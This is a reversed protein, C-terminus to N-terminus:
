ELKPVLPGICRFGPHNKTLPGFEITQCTAALKQPPTPKETICHQPFGALKTNSPASDFSILKM